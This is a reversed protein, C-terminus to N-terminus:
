YFVAYSLPMLSQIESKPEESRGPMPKKTPRFAFSSGSLKSQHRARLPTHIEEQGFPCLMARGVSERKPMAAADVPSRFRSSGGCEGHSQGTSNTTADVSPLQARAQTVGKAARATM